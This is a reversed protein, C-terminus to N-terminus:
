GSAVTHGQPLHPGHRPPALRTRPPWLHTTLLTTGGRARGLVQPRLLAASFLPGEWLGRPGHAPQALDRSASARPVPVQSPCPGPRQGTGEDGSVLSSALKTSARCGSGPKDTERPDCPWESLAARAPPPDSGPEMGRHVLLGPSQAPLGSVPDTWVPDTWVPSVRAVRGTWLRCGTCGCPTM